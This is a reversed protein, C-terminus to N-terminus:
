SRGGDSSSRSRFFDKCTAVGTSAIGLHLQLITRKGRVSFPRKLADIEALRLVEAAAFRDDPKALAVVAKPVFRVAVLGPAFFDGSRIDAKAFASDSIM